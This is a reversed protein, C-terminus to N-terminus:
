TKFKARYKAPSIEFYDKFSRSFYNYNEYGLNISIESLSENGYRIMEKALLMKKEHIYGTVTKGIKSKFLTATYEKSINLHASVDSLSISKSINEDIFRLAKIMYDNNTGYFDIDKLEYLIYNLISALKEKSHNYESSHIKPFVSVLKILDKSIVNRMYIPFDLKAGEAATFNFSVYKVPTQGELRERVTGPPLFVADNQGVVYKKGNLVYVMSGETVFTFGYYDIRRPQIEACKRVSINCYHLLEKVLHMKDELNFYHLFPIFPTVHQM